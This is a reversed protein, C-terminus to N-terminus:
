KRERYARLMELIETVSPTTPPVIADDRRFGDPVWTGDLFTKCIPEYDCSLFGSCQFPARHFLVEAPIGSNLQSIKQGIESLIGISGAEYEDLQYQTPVITDGVVATCVSGKLYTIEPIVGVVKSPDIGLQSAARRVGLVYATAQDGNQVSRLMGPISSRTTKREIIYIDGTEKDRGIADPRMTMKFGNALEPQIEVEVAFLDFRAKDAAWMPESVRCMRDLDAALEGLEASGKIEAFRERLVQQGFDLAVEINAGQAYLGAVEHFAAGFVLPMGVKEPLIGLVYKLFYQRPCSQYCQNHHHGVCSERNGGNDRISM